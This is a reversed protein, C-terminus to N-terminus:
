PTPPRRRLFDRVEVRLDAYVPEPDPVRPGLRIHTAVVSPVTALAPPSTSPTRSVRSTTASSPAPARAVRRARGRELHRGLRRVDFRAVLAEIAPCSANSSRRPAVGRPRPRGESRGVDLFDAGEDVLRQARRLFDDFDWYRGGDYFSDPTRNLIGMVLARHTIDFRRDPGLELFM